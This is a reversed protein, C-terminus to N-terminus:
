ITNSTSTTTNTSTTTSLYMPGFRWTTTSTSSYMSSSLIAWIAFYAYGYEYEYELVNPGFTFYVYEYDIINTGFALYDYEYELVNGFYDYERKTRVIVPHGLFFM